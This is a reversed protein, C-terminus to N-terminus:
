NERIEIVSNQTNLQLDTLSLKSIQKTLRDLQNSTGDAKNREILLEQM